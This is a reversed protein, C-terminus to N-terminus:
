PKGHRLVPPDGGAVDPLAIGHEDSAAVPDRQDVGARLRLCEAGTEVPHPDLVEVQEHERVEVEVVDTAEVGGDAQGVGHEDARGVPRCVLGHHAPHDGRTRGDVFGYPAILPHEAGQRPGDQPREFVRRQSAISRADGEPERTIEVGEEEAVEALAILHLEHGLPRGRRDVDHLHGVVAGAVLACFEVLADVRADADDRHPGVVVVPMRVVADEANEAVGAGPDEAGIL